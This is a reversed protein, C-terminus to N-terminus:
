DLFMKSFLNKIIRKVAEVCKVPWKHSMKSSIVEVAGRTVRHLGAGGGALYQRNPWWIQGLPLSLLFTLLGQESRASGQVTQGTCVHSLTHTVTHSLLPNVLSHMFDAPVESLQAMQQLTVASCGVRGGMLLRSWLLLTPSKYCWCTHTNPNRKSM